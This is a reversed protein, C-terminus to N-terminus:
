SNVLTFITSIPSNNFLPYYPPILFKCHHGVGPPVAITTESCRSRIWDGAVSRGFFSAYRTCSLCRCHCRHEMHHFMSAILVPPMTSQRLHLIFHFTCLSHPLLIFLPYLIFHLKRWKQQYMCFVLYRPFLTHWNHKIAKDIVQKTKTRM